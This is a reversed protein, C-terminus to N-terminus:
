AAERATAFNIEALREIADARSYGFTEIMADFIQEDTVVRFHTSNSQTAQVHEKLPTFGGTKRQASVQAAQEDLQRKTEAAVRDQEAKAVRAREADIAQQRIAEAKAEEAQKHEAIRLKVLSVLDDHAKLVIQAEDMFLFAYESQEALTALNRQIKDAVENAAIKFRALETDVADRLSAITRKNKMVGAFDSPIVPMLPKGLRDNLSAIHQQAKASGGQQIELKIQDKRSKVMKELMLRTQRAQEKFTAVTRCLLDVDAVQALASSEAAALATEAREMVKIAAEADAFGQDDDPEKNIRGIFATLQDGFTVLNSKVTLAGAVNVSLAPLDMVPTAVAAPLVEVPQYEALDAAFQIWGKIIREHWAPDPLVEVHAMREPTGDSVTFIWRAAGTVLLEQQVQPMHEEPMEGRSVMAFLEANYQKHEWGTTECLTLGDCSASIQYGCEPPLLEASCTVPFLEDGIHEETHPRAMAEVEHGHDLINEQVWRSFEKATGTKKMHLLENRKVKKSLGLMAAAESAGFNQLRFAHWPEEGQVLDHQKCRM